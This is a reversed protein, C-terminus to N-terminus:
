DDYGYDDDDDNSSQEGDQGDGLPDKVDPQEPSPSEEPALPDAPANSAEPSALPDEAEVSPEPSELADTPDASEEPTAVVRDANDVTPYPQQQRSAGKLTNKVTLLVENQKAVKLPAATLVAVFACLTIGVLALRSIM